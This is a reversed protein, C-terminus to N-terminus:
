DATTIKLKGLHGAISGVLNVLIAGFVVTALGEGVIPEVDPVLMFAVYLALYGIVYPVVMTQYFQGVKKWEFKGAKIATAVGLAFDLGILALIVYLRADQFFEGVVTLLVMVTGGGAGYAVAEGPGYSKCGALVALVVLGVLLVKVVGMMRRM